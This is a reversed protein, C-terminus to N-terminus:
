EPKEGDELWKKFFDLHFKPDTNKLGTQGLKVHYDVHCNPCIRIIFNNEGFTGKPFIHHNELWWLIACKACYEKKRDAM